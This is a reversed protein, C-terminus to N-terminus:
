IDIERIDSPELWWGSPLCLITNCFEDVGPLNEVLSDSFVSYKDNRYHLKSANFGSDRFKLLLKDRQPSTISYVWYNPRTGKQYKFHDGYYYILKDLEYKLLDIILEDYEGSNKLQDILYYNMVTKSM